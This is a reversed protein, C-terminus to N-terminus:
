RAGERFDFLNRQGKTEDKSYTEKGYLFGQLLRKEKDGEPLAESLAQATEWFMENGAYGSEDM